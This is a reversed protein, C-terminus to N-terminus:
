RASARDKRQIHLLAIKTPHNFPAPDVPPVGTQTLPYGSVDEPVPIIRELHLYGSAAANEIAAIFDKGSLYLANNVLAIRGDHAVLPRTKNLLGLPNERLAIQGGESISFYPPDIIVCDFLRGARKLGNVVKFFDGRLFDAQQAQWGNLRCTSQAVQLFRPNQDTQLVQKAGGALAAAGLSGTYAFTNLVTRGQLNEKLWTRLLRTDLYFSADQNLRLNVTYRVGNEFIERCLDRAEGRQVLGLRAQTDPSNRTKVLVTRLWGLRTLYFQEINALLAALAEPQAHYNYIVLTDGFVDVVLDPCGEYFGNFLRLAFPLRHELLPARAKLALELRVHLAELNPSPPNM